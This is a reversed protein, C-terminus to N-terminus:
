HVFVCLGTPHRAFLLHKTTKEKEHNFYHAEIMNILQQTIHAFEYPQTKESFPYDLTHGLGCNKAYLEQQRQQETYPLALNLVRIDQSKLDPLTSSSIKSFIEYMADYEGTYDRAVTLPEYDEIFGTLIEYLYNSFTHYEKIIEHKFNSVTYADVSLSDIMTNLHQNTYTFAKM